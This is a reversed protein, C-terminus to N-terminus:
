GPSRGLFAVLDKASQVYDIQAEGTFKRISMDEIMCAWAKRLELTGGSANSASAIPIMPDNRQGMVFMNQVSADVTKDLQTARHHTEFVPAKAAPLSCCSGSLDGLVFLSPLIVPILRGPGM